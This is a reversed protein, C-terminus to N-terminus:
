VVPTLTPWTVGDLSLSSLRTGDAAVVVAMVGSDAMGTATVGGLPSLPLPSGVKTLTSFAAGAVPRTAARLVGDTDIALVAIQSSTTALAVPGTAAISATADIVAGASVSEAVPDLQFVRLRADTGVAAALMVTDVAVLAARAGPDLEVGSTDNAVNRFGTGITAAPNGQFWNLTGGDEVAVLDVSDPGRSLIAAGDARRYMGSPSIVLPDSIGDSLLTDPDGVLVTLRGGPSTAALVVTDSETRVAALSRGQAVSRVPDVSAPKVATTLDGQQGLSDVFMRHLGGPGTVYIDTVLREVPDTEATVTVAPQCGVLAFQANGPTPPFPIGWLTLATWFRVVLHDDDDLHAIVMANDAVRAAGVPLIRPWGQSRAIKRLDPMTALGDVVGPGAATGLAPDSLLRRVDSAALLGKGHAVSMSQVAAAVGAVVASAGSTGGFQTYSSPGDSSPARVRSGAAFCDVRSGFSTFTRVWHDGDVQEGAAVVVAGSFTPSGPRTHALFPFKDLDVAGNGAPEIVSVGFATAIGIAAQVAPQFEILIDPREDPTGDALPPRAFFNLAEEILIVGGRGVATVGAAILGATNPSTGLDFLLTLEADPVIGITGVGNDAGVLIGAVSTGHGGDPVLDPKFGSPSSIRATLLEDHNTNWGGEIDAVKALAGSGGATQWAHIADVGNPAPQIQITRDTEPNTGYSVTGPPLARGRVTADVVFPLAQAATALADAVDDPSSIEFWCFPDPPEDGALRVADVIDALEEVPQQAFLPTLTADPFTAVLAAWAAALAPDLGPDTLAAEAGPAYPLALGGVVRVDVLAM